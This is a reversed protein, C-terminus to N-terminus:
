SALTGMPDWPDLVVPEQNIAEREEKTLYKNLVVAQYVFKDFLSSSMVFYGKEGVDSGWSNEIKWKVPNGDVIDVGTICMAHNMASNHFDLMEEKSFEVNLGTTSFYDFAKDDWASLSRDRYFGVDSGFWVPLGDKLQSIILQKMRDMELNLHNIKKGEVVNGLFAITFNKGFQKDKTPSNIISQYEELKKIGFYKEFFSVPTLDREIHYKGDKDEYEFDFNTPPVGFSNLYLTYIKEIIEEKLVRIENEKGEKYLKHSDAAFRRIAANVLINVERTNESQYTEPFADKPMVGYKKILNVFMDWQGGDSVPCMLIFQLVRDDHDKDVLRILSELAFNAKEIKDYLSIYNQSIEFEKLNLKKAIEERIINCGAFIWCRGSSKQNTVNMTKLNISFHHHVGKLSSSDFIVESLPNRSLAHRIVVNSKNAEYKQKIENSREQDLAGTINAM